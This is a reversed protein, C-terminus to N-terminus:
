RTEYTYIKNLFEPKVIYITVAITAAGIGVLIAPIIKNKPKQHLKKLVIIQEIEKMLRKIKDAYYPDTAYGAHAVEEAFRYPEQKYQLAYQYRSNRTLLGAWDMFSYFPNPYARFYDQVRYKWKGNSQQKPYGPYIFPFHRTATSLYETTTILQTDGQWGGYNVGSGKKIGFMMNGKASKGWGSELASQALAFVVPIGSKDAAKKAYPYYRTVFAEKTSM